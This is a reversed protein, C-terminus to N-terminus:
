AWYPLYKAHKRSMEPDYFRIEGSELAEKIIRSAKASNKEDIGFRARISSNTMMERSVYKLCAHLYCARIREDKEMENLSKHAFLVSRTHNDVVEFIPAPLQYFETEFVVKDIGSGREECIGIRRLFSALTENRSRPPTDLFRLTDVLPEGPNTIEMRNDFLEVMPGTGTMSFDQHIIANVVLERIALEPYITVDKRIAQEIVENSPLLNNIFSILANYGSAYGRPDVHEKRTKIRNNGDYEIVRVAKRRLHKFDNINKAFLIAGLNTIEWNGVKCPRIMNDSHL